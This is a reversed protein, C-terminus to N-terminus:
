STTNMISAFVEHTYALGQKHATVADLTNPTGTEVAQELVLRAKPALQRLRLALRPYDIDGPGFAETWVGNSSQRLHVEVIRPGHLDVVDFLAVQSNGSGRYIWHADLCLRVVRPDTGVMMHHFERAANRLEPDHNHYALTMGIDDLAHGLRTLAAAQTELQSDTKDEPGGWRIPSPNTVIVRAGQDKAARAINLIQALSQELEAPDHLTSNVYLSTMALGHQKMLRGLDTVPQPSSGIAELGGVGSSAVEAISRALDADWTRGDRALFTIWPYVNTHVPEPAAPRALAHRAALAASTAALFGRRHIM